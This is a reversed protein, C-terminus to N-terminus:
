AKRRPPRRPPRRPGPRSSSSTGPPRDRPAQSSRPCATPLAAAPRARCTHGSSTRSPRASTRRATRPRCRRLAPTPPRPPPEPSPLPRPPDRPLRWPTQQRAAGTATPPSRASPSSAPEGIIRSLLTRHSMVQQVAAVRRVPGLTKQLVPSALPAVHNPAHDFADAPLHVRQVVGDALVVEVEDGLDGGGRGGRGE